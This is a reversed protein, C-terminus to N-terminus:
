WQLSEPKVLFHYPEIREMIGYNVYSLSLCLLVFSLIIIKKERFFYILTSLLIPEVSYFHGAIRFSFIAYDNFSIQFFTSLLYVNLLLFYKNNYAIYNKNYFYILFFSTLIQQLTKPHLLSASYNHADWNLYLNVISPLFGISDLVYFIKGVTDLYNILFASSLIMFLSSPKFQRNLFYIVISLVSVYHITTSILYILFFMKKNDKQLFYIMPLVLVSALGARIPIWEHFIIEHSLYFLFAILYYNSYRSFFYLRLGISLFAFTFLLSQSNFGATKLLSGIFAFVIGNSLAIYMDNFFNDLTPILAFVRSYEDENGRLGIMLIFFIGILYYIIKKEKLEKGLSLIM